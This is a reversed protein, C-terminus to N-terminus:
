PSAGARSRAGDAGSGRRRSRACPSCRPSIGGTTPRRTCTPRRISRRASDRRRERARQRGLLGLRDAGGDARARVPVADVCGIAVRAGGNLSAAATVIGTGDRGITVAAFGDQGGPPITIKTLLEGPGAATMYVGLFFEDASVTREGAPGSSRSADRRARRAAAPPPEDPRELLRQRRDHRPEAGARRRDDGRGRRPDVARRRGRRQDLQSYTTMAGIEVSGNGLDRM